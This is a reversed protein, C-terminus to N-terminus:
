PWSAATCFSWLHGPEDGIIEATGEDRIIEAGTGHVQGAQVGEDM